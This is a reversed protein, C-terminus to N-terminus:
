GAKRGIRPLFRGTRDMYARYEDGFRSLLNREEISTRLVLLSVALTGAVLIFWNAAALGGGLVSLAVSVYFPHRIWRYPGATVLTHAKRTVVTDTLNKGLTHFAWILLSGGIAGVCAGCWRLWLPVPMSSRAMWAPNILYVLVGLMGALGIPRLTALIFWGEQRRDLWEGKVHSRFRYYLALPIVIVAGTTM